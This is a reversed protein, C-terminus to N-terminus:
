GVYYKHIFLYSKAYFARSWVVLAKRRSKCICLVDCICLLIIAKQVLYANVVWADYWSCQLARQKQMFVFHIDYM